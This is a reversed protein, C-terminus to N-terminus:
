VEVDCQREGVFVVEWRETFSEAIACALCFGVGDDLSSDRKKRTVQRDARPIMM